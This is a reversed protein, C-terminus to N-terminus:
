RTNDLFRISAVYKNGNLMVSPLVERIPKICSEHFDDDYENNYNKVALRAVAIARRHSDFVLGFNDATIDEDDADIELSQAADHLFTRQITQMQLMEDQKM